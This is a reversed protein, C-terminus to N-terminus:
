YCYGGTAKYYRPCLDKFLKQDGSAINYIHYGGDNWAEKWVGAYGDSYVAETAADNRKSNTKCYCSKAMVVNLLMAFIVLIVASNIQAM